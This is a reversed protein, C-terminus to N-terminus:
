PRPVCCACIKHSISTRPLSNVTRVDASPAAPGDWLQPGSMANMKM